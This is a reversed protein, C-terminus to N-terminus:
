RERERGHDRERERAREAAEVLSRVYDDGRLKINELHNPTLHRVDEAKLGEGREMSDRINEIAALAKRQAIIQERQSISAPAPARAGSLLGSVFDVLKEAGGTLGNVVALGSKDPLKTPDTVRAREADVNMSWQKHRQAARDDRQEARAQWYRANQKGRPKSADADRGSQRQQQQDRTEQPEQRTTQPAPQPPQRFSANTVPTASARWLPAPPRTPEIVPAVPAPPKLTRDTAAEKPQADMRKDTPVPGRGQEKDFFKAWAAGDAGEDLNWEPAIEPAAKTAEPAAPTPEIEPVPAPAQTPEIIPAAAEPQAARAPEQVLAPRTRQTERAEAVSPLADRDIDAMHERVDKAKVGDLRRALSHADGAADVICFDRKDGKALIYGREDVAAAFAKGSDSGRWLETLEAKMAAPDIGSREAARIEWLEQASKKEPDREPTPSLDFRSELEHQTATHIRYNGGMDAVRLNEDVRNWVIHRHTRGEKEHEVVVRQHGELGLNKELTDVAERWQEETL